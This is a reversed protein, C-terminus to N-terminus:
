FKYIKPMYVSDKLVDIPELKEIDEEIVKLISDVTFGKKMGDISSIIVSSLFSNRVNGNGLLTRLDEIEVCEGRLNIFGKSIIDEPNFKMINISSRVEFVEEFEIGYLKDDISFKLINSINEEIQSKEVVPPSKQKVTGTINYKVKINEWLEMVKKTNLVFVILGQAYYGVSKIYKSRLEVDAEEDISCIQYDYFYDIEIAIKKNDVNLILVRIEKKEEKKEIGILDCLNLLWLIEGQYILKKRKKKDTKGKVPFRFVKEVNKESIAFRKAGAKVILMKEKIGVRDESVEVKKEGLVIESDSLYKKEIISVDNILESTNLIFTLTGDPLSSVATFYKAEKTSFNLPRSVVELHDLFRDVELAIRNEADGIVLLFLNKNNNNKKLNLYDGFYVLPIKQGNYYIKRRSDSDYAGNTQIVEVKEIMLTQVSFEFGGCEFILVNTISLDSPIKIKLKMGKGIESEIRIQGNLKKINNNIVDMGVGMGSVKTIEKKTTFGPSFLFDCCEKDSLSEAKESSVLKRAVAVSKIEDLNIGRGDDAIEVEIENGKQSTSLTINGVEPKGASKREEANEIGHDVANRLAHILPDYIEEMVRRDFDVDEGKIKFTIKKGKEESTKRVVRKLRSFVTAFQVMKTKLIEYKMEEVLINLQFFWLSFHELLSELLDIQSNHFSKYKSDLKILNEKQKVDPLEEIIDILNKKIDEDKNKTFDIIEMIKPINIQGYNKRVAMESSLDILKNIRDLKIRISKEQYNSASEIPKDAIELTLYKKEQSIESKESMYNEIKKEIEKKEDSYDENKKLKFFIKKLIEISFFALDLVKGDLDRKGKRIDDLINELKHFIEGILSFGFSLSTSKLSHFIRFVNDINAKNYTGEELIMLEDSLVEIQEDFDEYYVQLLEDLEEEDFGELQSEQNKNEEDM